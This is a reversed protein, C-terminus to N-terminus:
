TNMDMVMLCTEIISNPLWLGWTHNFEVNSCKWSDQSEHPSVPLFHSPVAVIQLQWHNGFYVSSPEFSSVLCFWNGNHQLLPKGM